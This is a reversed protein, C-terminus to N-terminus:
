QGVGSSIIPGFLEWQEGKLRMMQMQQIPYLDTPTTHAVIGPIMLKFPIKNLSAAQKMVNARSLDNGCQTLIQVLAQATVYGYVTMSDAKNAGPMYKDMFASWAKMEPHDKWRADTSEMLYATSLIGQSNEIGAPKMVAGVSVSINILYHAPKWGIEAVKKIVQSAFKPTTINVLVDAGSAKLKLIQSDVTPDAPEYTATSIIMASSKEGLGAKLGALYDKGFDDNQYLVAIKANPLSALIHKAYISGESFYTPQWGMTWPYKKPDVLHTAGGGVLLQPVQKANLYKQSALNAATGITNFMALVDDSEVLKRTQEVTKPPSLADDYSIFNIKRGNIGGNENIMKFYAAETKTITSYASGPGSYPSTNGIRIETDSFGPLSAKEAWAGPTVAGCFVLAVFWSGFCIHSAKGKKKENAASSTINLSSEAKRNILNTIKMISLGNM